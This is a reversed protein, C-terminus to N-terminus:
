CAVCAGHECYRHDHRQAQWARYVNMQAAAPLPAFRARLARRTHSRVVALALTALLTLVTVIAVLNM